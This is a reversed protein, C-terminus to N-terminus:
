NSCLAARIISCFLCFLLCHAAAILYERYWYVIGNVTLVMVYLSTYLINLVARELMPRTVIPKKRLFCFFADLLHFACGFAVVFLLIAALLQFGYSMGVRVIHQAADYSTMTSVDPVPYPCFPFM